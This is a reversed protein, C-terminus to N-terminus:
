CTAPETDTWGIGKDSVCLTICQYVDIVGVDGCTEWGLVVSVFVVSGAWGYCVQVLSLCVYYTAVICCCHYFLTVLCLMPLMCSLM